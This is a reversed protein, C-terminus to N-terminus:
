GRDVFEIGLEEITPEKINLIKAIQRYQENTIKNQTWLDFMKNVQKRLYLEIQQQYYEQVDFYCIADFQSYDKDVHRKTNIDFKLNRVYFYKRGINEIKAKYRYPDKRGSGAVVYVVDGIKTNIM